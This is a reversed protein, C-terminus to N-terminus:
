KGKVKPLDPWKFHAAKTSQPTASTARSCSSSTTQGFNRCFLHENLHMKTSPTQAGTSKSRTGKVPRAGGDCNQPPLSSEMLPTNHKEAPDPWRHVMQAESFEGPPADKVGRQCIRIFLSVKNTDSKKLTDGRKTTNVGIQVLDM